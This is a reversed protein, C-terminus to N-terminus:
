YQLYSYCFFGEWVQEVHWQKEIKFGHFKDLYGKFAEESMGKGGESLKAVKGRLKVMQMISVAQRLRRQKVQLTVRKILEHDKYHEVSSAICFKQIVKPLILMLQTPWQLCALGFLIWQFMNERPLVVGSVLLSAVLIANLFMM